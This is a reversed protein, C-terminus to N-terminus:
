RKLLQPALEQCCGIAIGVPIDRFTGEFFIGGWGGLRAKRIM